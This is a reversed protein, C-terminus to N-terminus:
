PVVRVAARDRLQAAGATVVPTGPALGRVAVRDGQFGVLVVTERHAKAPDSGTEIRYIVAERDRGEVVAQAPLTVYDADARPVIEATGTFGSRLRDTLDGTESLDLRLEVEYTGTQPTVAGAVETVRAPIRRGPMAQLVVSASDGTAVQVVDRDPLGARLVFGSASAGLALIPQGGSVTQGAEATRRLVRGGSPAQIVAHRRNFRASQLRAEAVDVATRANQLDELTAVSDRQLTRTRELDRRAKDFASEAEAVRADIESLQLRALTQGPRVRDGEDVRIRDIVGGIKFALPIEAKTALRGSTPIPLPETAAEALTVSVPVPAPSAPAPEAGAGCGVLTLATALIALLGAALRGPPIPVPPVPPDPPMM